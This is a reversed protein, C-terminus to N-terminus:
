RWRFRRGMGTFYGDVVLCYVGANVASSRVGVNQLFNYSNEYL